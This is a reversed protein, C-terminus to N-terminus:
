FKSNTNLSLPYMTVLFMCHYMLTVLTVLLTLNMDINTMFMFKQTLNLM